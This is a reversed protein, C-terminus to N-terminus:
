APWTSISFRLADRDVAAHGRGGAARFRLRGHRHHCRDWAPLADRQACVLAVVALFKNRRQTVVPDGGVKRAFGSSDNILPSSTMGAIQDALLLTFADLLDEAPEFRDGPQALRAM